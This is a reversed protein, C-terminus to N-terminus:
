MVSVRQPTSVFKWANKDETISPSSKSAQGAGENEGTPTPCFTVPCAVLYSYFTRVRLLVSCEATRNVSAKLVLLNPLRRAACLSQLIWMHVVGYSTHDERHNYLFQKVPWWNLAGGSCRKWKRESLKNLFLNTKTNCVFSPFICPYLKYIFPCKMRSKHSFIPHYSCVLVCRSLSLSLSLSICLSLKQFPTLWVHQSNSIILYVVLSVSLFLQFTKSSFVLIFSAVSRM